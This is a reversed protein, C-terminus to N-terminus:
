CNAQRLHKVLIKKFDNLGYYLQRSIIELDDKTLPKDDHSDIM